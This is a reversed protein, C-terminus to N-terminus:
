LFAAFLGGLGGSSQQQSQQQPEGSFQQTNAGLLATGGASFLAGGLAWKQADKASDRAQKRAKSALYLEEAFQRENSYGQALANQIGGRFNFIDELRNAEIGALQQEAQYGAQPLTEALGRRAYLSNVGAGQYANLLSRELERRANGSGAIVGRRQAQAQQNILPEGQRAFELWMAPVVQGEGQRLADYGKRIGPTLSQASPLSGLWDQFSGSAQGSGNM